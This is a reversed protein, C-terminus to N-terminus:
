GFNANLPEPLARPAIFNEITETAQHVKGLIENLRPLDRLEVKTRALALFTECVELDRQIFEVRLRKSERRLADPDPVNPM